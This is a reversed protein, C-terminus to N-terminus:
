EEEEGGGLGSEAVDGLWGTALALREVTGNERALLGVMLSSLLLAAFALWELIAGFVAPGWLIRLFVFPVVPVVCYIYSRGGALAIRFASGPGARTLSEGAVLLLLAAPVLAWGALALVLGALLSGTVLGVLAAPLAYLVVLVLATAGERYVGSKAEFEPWPPPDVRGAYAGHVVRYPYAMYWVGAGIAIAGRVLDGVVHLSLWEFSGFFRDVVWATLFILLVLALGGMLSFANEGTFPWSLIGGVDLPRLTPLRREPKEVDVAEELRAGPEVREEEDDYFAPILTARPEDAVVALELSDGPDPTEAPAAQPAEEEVLPPAADEGALELRLDAHSEDASPGEEAPESPPEEEVDETPPPEPADTPALELPADDESGEPKEDREGHEM